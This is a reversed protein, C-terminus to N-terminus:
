VLKYLEMTQNCLFFVSTGALHSSEGAIPCVCSGNATILQSGFSKPWFFHDKFLPPRKISTFICQLAVIPVYGLPGQISTTESYLHDCSCTEGVMSPGPREISTTTFIGCNLCSWTTKPRQICTTVLAPKVTCCGSHSKMQKRVVLIWINHNSVCPNLADRRGAMGEERGDGGGQRGRRGATGEERDDGGGQRGRRGATGGGQRGRRGATGEERGDGGGQRGRRGATGEERGDGGGQRGRRGAM